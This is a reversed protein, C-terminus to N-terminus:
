KLSEILKARGTKHHPRKGTKQEILDRLEDDSLSDRALATDAGVADALRVFRRAREAQADDLSVTVTAGPRVWVKGALTNLGRAAKGENTALYEM